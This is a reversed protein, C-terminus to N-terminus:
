DVYLYLENDEVQMMRVKGNFYECTTSPNGSKSKKVGKWLVSEGIEPPIKTSINTLQKFSGSVWEEVLETTAAIAPPIGEDSPPAEGGPSASASGPQLADPVDPPPVKTPPAIAVGYNASKGEGKLGFGPVFVATSKTSSSPKPTWAPIPAPPPSQPPVPTPAAM